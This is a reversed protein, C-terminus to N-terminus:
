FLTQEHLFKEDKIYKLTHTKNKSKEKIIMKPLRRRGIQRAEM